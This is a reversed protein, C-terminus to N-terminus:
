IYLFIGDSIIWIVNAIIISVFFIPNAKEYHDPIIRVVFFDILISFCDDSIM